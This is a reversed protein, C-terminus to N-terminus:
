SKKFTAARSTFLTSRIACIRLKATSFKCCHQLTRVADRQVVGEFPIRSAFLRVGLEVLIADAAMTLSVSFFM